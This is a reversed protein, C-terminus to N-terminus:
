EPGGMDVMRLLNEELFIGLRVTIAVLFCGSTLDKKDFAFEKSLCNCTKLYMPLGDGLDNMLTGSFTAMHPISGVSSVLEVSSSILFSITSMIDVSYSWHEDSSKSNMLTLLLLATTGVTFAPNLYSPFAIVFTKNM